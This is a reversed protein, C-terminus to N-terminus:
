FILKGERAGEAVAKVRGHYKYGARDFVVKKIKANLAKKAVEKGVEFARQAKKVKKDMKLDSASVITIGKADNIVQAYVHTNSRFVALRPRDLTGIVKARIKTKIRERSSKHTVKM